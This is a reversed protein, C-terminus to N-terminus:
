PQSLPLLVLAERFKCDDVLRECCCIGEIFTLARSRDVIGSVAICTLDM